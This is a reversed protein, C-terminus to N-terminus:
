RAKPKKCCLVAPEHDPCALKDAEYLGALVTYLGEPAEAALKLSYTCEAEGNPELAVKAAAPEAAVGEPLRLKVEGGLRAALANKLRFSVQTEGGPALIRKRPIDHIFFAKAAGAPPGYVEVARLTSIKPIWPISEFLCSNVMHILVRVRDTTVPEFRHDGIFRYRNNRMQDVTKWQGGVFAQVDYDRLVREWAGYDHYVRVRAVPAPQPLRVEFWDPWQDKSSEDEDWGRRAGSLAMASSYCTWDGSIATAPPLPEGKKPKQVSSASVTAGLTPIALNPQVQLGAYLPELRNQPGVALYTPDGTMTIRLKGGEPKRTTRNGMLDTVAVETADTAVDLDAPEDNTFAVAVTRTKDQYLQFHHGKGPLPIERVFKADRLCENMVQIAIAASTPSKYNVLFFENYGHEVLYFDYIRDRPIAMAEANLHMLVANRAQSQRFANFRDYVYDSFEWGRHWASETMWIGHATDKHDRLIQWWQDIEGRYVEQFGLGTYPHFSIGDFFEQGGLEYLRRVWAYNDLGCICGGLFNAEPNGAKVAPYQLKLVDEIYKEPSMGLNPENVPEWIEVGQKKAERAFDALYRQKAEAVRKKREEADPCKQEFWKNLDDAWDLGTFSFLGKVTGKHALDLYQGYDKMRAEWDISGDPKRHQRWTSAWSPNLRIGRMGLINAWLMEGDVGGKGDLDRLGPCEPRIRAFAVEHTRKAAKGGPLSLTLRARFYGMEKPALDVTAQLPKGPGLAIEQQGGGVPRQRHDELKWDLRWAGPVLYPEAFDLQYLVPEGEYFLNRPKDPHMSFYPAPEVPSRPDAAHIALSVKADNKAARCAWYGRRSNLLENTYPDRKGIAYHSIGSIGRLELRAGDRYTVEIEPWYPGHWQYFSFIDPSCIHDAPLADEIGNLLNRVAVADDGFVSSLDFPPPGDKSRTKGARLSAPTIEIQGPLFKLTFGPLDPMDMSEALKKSMTDLAGGKATEAKKKQVEGERLTIADDTEQRINGLVKAKRGLELVLNSVLITKGALIRVRGDRYVEAAYTAAKVTYLPLDEETLELDTPDAKRIAVGDAAWATPSSCLCLLCLLLTPKPM